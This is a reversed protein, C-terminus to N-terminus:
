PKADVIQRKKAQNQCDPNHDIVRDDDHFIHLSIDPVSQGRDLRRLLGHGLDRKLVAQFKALDNETPVIFPENKNPNFRTTEVGFETRFEEFMRGIKIFDQDSKVCEAYQEGTKELKFYGEHSLIFM